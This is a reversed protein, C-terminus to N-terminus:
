PHMSCIASLCAGAVASSTSAAPLRLIASQTCYHLLGHELLSYHDFCKAPQPLLSVLTLCTRVLWAQLTHHQWFRAPM